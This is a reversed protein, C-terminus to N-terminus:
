NIKLKLNTFNCTIKHSQFGRARCLISNTTVTKRPLSSVWWSVIITGSLAGELSFRKDNLGLCLQQSIHTGHLHCKERFSCRKNMEFNISVTKKMCFSFCFRTKHMLSSKCVIIFVLQRKFTPNECLEFRQQCLSQM